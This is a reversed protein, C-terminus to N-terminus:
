LRKELKEIIEDIKTRALRVKDLTTKVAETPLNNVDEEYKKEFKDLTAELLDDIPSIIRSLGLSVLQKQGEDLAGLGRQLLHGTNILLDRLQRVSLRDRVVQDIFERREEKKVRFLLIKHSASLHESTQVTALESDVEREHIAMEVAGHLSSLPMLIDPHEALRRM